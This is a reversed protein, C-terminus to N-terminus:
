YTAAASATFTIPKKVRWHTTKQATVPPEKMRAILGPTIPYIAVHKSIDTDAATENGTYVVTKNRTKLTSGPIVTTSNCATLLTLLSLCILSPKQM